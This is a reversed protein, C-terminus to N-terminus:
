SAPLDDAAADVSAKTELDAEALVETAVDAVFNDVDQQKEADPSAAGANM